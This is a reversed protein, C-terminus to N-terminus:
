PGGRLNGSGDIIGLLLNPQQKKQEQGTSGHIHAVFFCPRYVNLHVTETFIRRGSCTEARDHEKNTQIQRNRVYTKSNWKSFHSPTSFPQQLPHAHNFAMIVDQKKKKRICCRYPRWHHSSILASSNLSDVPQTYLGLLQTFRLLSPLFIYTAIIFRRFM